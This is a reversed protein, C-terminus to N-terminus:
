FNPGHHWSVKCPIVFKGRTYNHICKLNAAKTICAVYSMKIKKKSEKSTYNKSIEKKRANKKSPIKYLFVPTLM